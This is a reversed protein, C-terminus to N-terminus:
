TGYYVTHLSGRRRKCLGVGFMRHACGSCIEPAIAFSTPILVMVCPTAILARSFPPSRARGSCLKPAIAFYTPILATLCPTAILARSFPPSQARESCSKPATVFYTPIRV